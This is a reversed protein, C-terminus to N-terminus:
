RGLLGREFGAAVAAARDNVGLKAYVHMLHTKVTAESIFLQAAAERNTAGRPSWSSCRLERPSLPAGAGARAGPRCRPQSPRRSCRSAAPPPACAASCSRARRTRSCTAPRAPKSRRRARRQGHRLDHAGAGAGALRARALERSRARRRRDGPMRLDMLVVDPASRRPWRSPRARRRRGRRGGRVRPRRHLHRAARQPRGPPRRRDARPDDRAAGRPVRPALDRHGRRADSEIALTGGVGQVRQRMGTLGFGGGPARGPRLRRRRRPRRADGPGGHLVADARRPAAHAHKAVNALAEQATRLLAVEVEPHMPRPTGTTTFAVPVGTRESWGDRRRALADPLRAGSSSSRACRACRAGRRPWATAPSSRHGRGPAARRRGRPRAAQAAAELQTVIGTLGQALTDHIERALRQREQLVGAEREMEERKRAREEAALSAAFLSGAAFVNM